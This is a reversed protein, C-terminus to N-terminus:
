ALNASPIEHNLLKQYADVGLVEHEIAPIIVRLKEFLIDARDAFCREFRASSLRNRILFWHGWLRCGVVIWTM